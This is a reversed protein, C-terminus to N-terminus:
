ISNMIMIIIFNIIFGILSFLGIQNAKRPTSSHMVCFLILGVIPIFFGLLSLLGNPVDEENKNEKILASNNIACGCNTCVVAEDMVEKGCHTCYKM